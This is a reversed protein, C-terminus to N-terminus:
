RNFLEKLKSFFNRDNVPLQIDKEPNLLQEAINNVCRAAASEPHELFFSELRRNSRPVIPDELIYGLASINLSLFRNAVQIMKNSIDQYEKLSDVRNLVLYPSIDFHHEDLVKMIAYADTISHPEPTTIVIVSDAALVFNMVNKSLGAGTDILIIDAYQELMQLSYILHNFQWDEMDALYQLGSGGPIVHIGGPGEVIIDLLEKEKNIIHTLNYKPHLNLLVDVNATGLDADIIFVRQGLKALSLAFNITFTTKGVGGKGSTVTIVRPMQRQRKCLSYPLRLILHPNPKFVRSVVESAFSFNNRLCLLDVPIGAGLLAVKGQHIPMSVQLTCDRISLIEATYEERYLPSLTKVQLIDGTKIVLDQEQLVM